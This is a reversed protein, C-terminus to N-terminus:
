LEVRRKASVKAEPQAIAAHYNAQADDVCRKLAQFVEGAKAESIANERYGRVLASLISSTGDGIMRCAEDVREQAKSRVARASISAEVSKSNEQMKPIM